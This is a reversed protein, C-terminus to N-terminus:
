MTVKDPVCGIVEVYSAAAPRLLVACSSKVMSCCLQVHAFCQRIDAAQLPTVTRANLTGKLAIM